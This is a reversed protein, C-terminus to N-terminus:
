LKKVMISSVKLKENEGLNVNKNYIALEKEFNKDDYIHVEYGEPIRLSLIRNDIASGLVFKGPTLSTLKGEYNEKDYAVVRDEEKISSDITGVEIITEEIQQKKYNNYFYIFLGITSSLLLLAIIFVIVLIIIINNNM